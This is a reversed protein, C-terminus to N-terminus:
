LGAALSNSSAIVCCMSRVAGAPASMVLQRYLYGCVGAFGLV